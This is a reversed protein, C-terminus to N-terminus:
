KTLFHEKQHNSIGNKFIFVKIGQVVDQLYILYKLDKIM